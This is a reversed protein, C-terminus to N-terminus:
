IYAMINFNRLSYYGQHWRLLFKVDKKDYHFTRYAIAWVGGTFAMFLLIYPSISSLLKHIALASKNMILKNYFLVM